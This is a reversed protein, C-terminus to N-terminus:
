KIILIDVALWLSVIVKRGGGNPKRSKYLLFVCYKGDQKICLMM